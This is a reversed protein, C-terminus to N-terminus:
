VWGRLKAAEAVRKVAVLYAAQRMDIKENQAMEYVASFASTMKDDLRQHVEELEWYYNYTNQVQEFYSVTVGGANALFDPILFTGKKYLIEDAEPTTPGNALELLIKCDIKDVNKETIVGEIAAPVLIYCETELLETNSIAKTGAFDKVSGTRDYHKCLKDIDLGQENIIGGYEDSVAIVNVGLMEKALIACWKGVNGFGQIVMSKGKLELKKAKATERVTILGGRATADTRGKSGGLPLPKGTIIGPASGQNIVEYEDMMWAMIQPTTNVDPAPVDNQTGIDRYIARIFARALREKENDSLTKPDCIIGGKGGGLPIDVVSTKWTMWTALARVTDVTEDPHWRLGGKAPGRATSHQIRFGPFVKTTGDDMRVPINVKVEHQPNRLFMHTGEDLGLTAAATDLQRQAMEFPNLADM